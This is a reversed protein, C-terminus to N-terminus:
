VTMRVRPAIPLLMTVLMQQISPEGGDRIPTRAVEVLGLFEEKNHINIVEFQRTGFCCRGSPHAM